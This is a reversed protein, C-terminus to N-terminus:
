RLPFGSSPRLRGAKGKCVAPASTSAPTAICSHAHRWSPVPPAKRRVRTWMRGRAAASAFPELGGLALKVLPLRELGAPLPWLPQFGAQM